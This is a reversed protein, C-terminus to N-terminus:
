MSCDERLEVYATKQITFLDIQKNISAQFYLTLICCKYKAVRYMQSWIRWKWMLISDNKGKYKLYKRCSSFSFFSLRCAPVHPVRACPVLASLFKKLAPSHLVTASHCKGTFCQFVAESPSFTLGSTLFLVLFLLFSATKGTFIYVYVQQIDKISLCKLVAQIGLNFYDM